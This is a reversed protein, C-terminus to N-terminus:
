VNQKNWPFVEDRVLLDLPAQLGRLLHGQAGQCGVSPDASTWGALLRQQLREVDEAERRACSGGHGGREGFEGFTVPFTNATHLRTQM